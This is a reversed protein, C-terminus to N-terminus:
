HGEPPAEGPPTFVVLPEAIVSLSITTYIVMLVALPVTAAIARARSAFARLAVLHALWISAVHGGVIAAIAIVWSIEADILGIDPRYHVTGFLNWHLGLPDSSLPILLQLQIVLTAFNHAVNYGVAIPVLTLAFLRAIGLTGFGPALPTTVLCTLLYATLFALWVGLLGMGGILYGQTDRLWPFTHALWHQTMQWFDGVLLGDFLVIALMAVVFAVTANSSTTTDLLGSGPVHLVLSRRSGTTRLPAFRGLTHFYISLVDVHQQWTDRGFVVMGALTFASWGILACALKYPISAQPYVLEFWGVALLLIVAPWQGLREPYEVHLRIGGPLGAHRAIADVGDFMLRWPDIAPWINGVCSVFLSLGVWCVVWVMSPAINMLPDTTGYLGAAVVLALMPLSLARGLGRLVPLILGPTITCGSRADSAVGDFKAPRVFLAAIVFSLAVTASAGAVFWSLPAPLDYREDFAHAWVQAPMASCLVPALRVMNM